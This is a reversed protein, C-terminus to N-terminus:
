VYIRMLGKHVEVQTTELPTREGDIAIIGGAPVLRFAKVFLLQCADMKIHSGDEMNCLWSTMTCPACTINKGFCLVITGDDLESSPAGFMDSAQHTTQMAIFYQWDEGEMKKWGLAEHEEGIATDIPPLMTRLDHLSNSQASIDSAAVAKTEKTEKAGGTEVDASSGGSGYNSSDDDVPLYYLTGTYNRVCGDCFVLEIGRCTFRFDGCCRYKESTIDIDSALAWETSLFSFSQQSPSDVSCLDMPSVEGRAILYAMSAVDRTEKKRHLISLALGNGSGAPIIAVPTEQISTLWNERKMLGSIVEYLIGDGGVAIIGDYSKINENSLNQVIETAHSRGTTVIEICEIQAAELIPLCKKRFLNVGNKTGSVPNIVVLMKRRKVELLAAVETCSGSGLLKVDDGNLTLSRLMRPKENGKRDCIQITLTNEEASCTAGIIDDINTVKCLQILKSALSSNVSKKMTLTNKPATKSLLPTSTNYKSTDM